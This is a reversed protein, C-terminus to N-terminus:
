KIVLNVVNSNSGKEPTIELPLGRLEAAVGAANGIRVQLTEKVDFVEVTGAKALHSTLIGGNEKKIQIWSDQSFKLKVVDNAMALPKAPHVAPAEVLLNEAEMKGGPGTNRVGNPLVQPLEQFTRNKTDSVSATVANSAVTNVQELEASPAPASNANELANPASDASAILDPASASNRSMWDKASGLIESRQLLFFVVAFVALLAAGILYKYSNDQRGMLSLRSELFPTSLAPKLAAELQTRETDKPLLGVVFDADLKLLKSYARVFGRVIVMKPLDEFQNAELAVIQRPSLKLQEAVQQVSWDKQLRAAALTPGASHVVTLNPKIIKESEALLLQESLLNAGSDSM